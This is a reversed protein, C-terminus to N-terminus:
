AGSIVPGIKEHFRLITLFGTFLISQLIDDDTMDEFLKSNTRNNAIWNDLEEEEEMTLNKVVFGSILYAARSLVNDKDFEIHSSM